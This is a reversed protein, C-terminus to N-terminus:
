IRDVLLLVWQIKIAFQKYLFHRHRQDLILGHLDILFHPYLKLFSHTHTV